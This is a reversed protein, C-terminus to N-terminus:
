KMALIERRTIWIGIALAWVSTLAAPVAFIIEGLETRDTFFRPFGIVVVAVSSVLLFWGLWKPYASSLVIGIALFTLALWHVVITMNFLSFGAEYLAAAVSYASNGVVSDLAVWDVAASVMGLGIASSISFLTTGVIVGYFGLRAWAAAGGTSISRYVGVTGMMLAWPGVAVGLFALQSLTENDAFKTLAEIVDSPDDARPFLANSMLTLIGGVIFGLGAIKQLVDGRYTEQSM